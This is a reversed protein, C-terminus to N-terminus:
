ASAGGPASKGALAAKLLVDERPAPAVVIDAWSITRALASITHSLCGARMRAANPAGLKLFAGITRPSHFLVVDIDTRTLPEPLTQALHAEYAVRREIQFGVARLTSLLAGAIDEGSIHVLAGDRPDLASQTLHALAAVDGDASQVRAFGADRAFAATADGVTLVRVSREASANAFARVGNISTFLLAQVGDLEPDFDPDPAISILPALIAEHGLARVREATRANEPAARTIAVRLSM